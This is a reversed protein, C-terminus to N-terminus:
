LFDVQVHLFVCIITVYLKTKCACVSVQFDLEMVFSVHFNVGKLRKYGWQVFFKSIRFIIFVMIFSFPFKVMFEFIFSCQQFWFQFQQDFIFTLHSTRIHYICDTQLMYKWTILTSPAGRNNICCIKKYFKIIFGM